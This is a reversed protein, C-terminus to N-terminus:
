ADPLGHLQQSAAAHSGYIEGFAGISDEQHGGGHLDDRQRQGRGCDFLAEAALALEQGTQIMRLDCVQDIPADGIGAQRIQHHFKDISQGDVLEARRALEVGAGADAQQALNQFRQGVHVAALHDM